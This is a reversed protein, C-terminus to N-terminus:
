AHPTLLESCDDYFHVTNQSRYSKLIKASRVMGREADIELLVGNGVRHHQRAELPYEPRPAFTAIVKPSGNGSKQKLASSQQAGPSIVFLSTSFITQLASRRM